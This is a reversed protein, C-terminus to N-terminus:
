QGHPVGLLFSGEYVDARLAGEHRPCTLRGEGTMEDNQWVGEYKWGQMLNFHELIDPLQQQSCKTLRPTASMGALASVYSIM